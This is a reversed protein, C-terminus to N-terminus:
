FALPQRLERHVQVIAGHFGLRPKIDERRELQAVAGNHQNLPTPDGAVARAKAGIQSMGVGHGFGAGIFSFTAPVDVALAPSILTLALLASLAPILKKFMRM